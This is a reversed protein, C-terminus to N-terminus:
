VKAIARVEVPATGRGVMGLKKAAAYSLDILRNSVFPGRDNVKVIVQKGNSLNTVQVYTSLPLTKHAATMQYMNFREGSSTRKKNFRSGYWSALGTETYNKSDSMVQYQKGYQRYCSASKDKCLAANTQNNIGDKNYHAVCGNLLLFIGVYFAICVKRFM